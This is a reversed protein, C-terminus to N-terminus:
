WCWYCSFCSGSAAGVSQFWFGVARIGDVLMWLLPLGAGAGASVDGKYSGLEDKDPDVRDAGGGVLRGVIEEQHRKGSDFQALTGMSRQIADINIRWAWGGTAPDKDLNTVAFARLAPDVIDKALLQTPTGCLMCPSSAFFSSDRSGSGRPPVLVFLLRSLLRVRRSIFVDLRFPVVSQVPRFPPVSVRVM